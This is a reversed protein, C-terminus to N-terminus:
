PVRLFEANVAARAPAPASGDAPLDAQDVHRRRGGSRGAPRATLRAGSRAPAAARVAGHDAAARPGTGRTVGLDVGDDVPRGAARRGVRASRDGHRPGHDHREGPEGHGAVLRRAPDQAPRLDPQVGPRARPHCGEPQPLPGTTTKGPGNALRVTGSLDVARGGINKVRATILPQGSPLRQGTISTIEFKTQPVGGHSVALYLRVGVRSVETVGFDSGSRAKSTQQVWVVGYHEGKTAGQPVKVTVTDMASKGPALTVSPHQVSTWPTLENPTAGKDGVFQGGTIHAADPYVTFHATRPENNVILIRRHIVAGTPLDDIIYRLARPNNAESVPVDM